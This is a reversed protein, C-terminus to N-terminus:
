SVPADTYLIIDSPTVHVMLKHNVCDDYGIEFIIICKSTTVPPQEHKEKLTV